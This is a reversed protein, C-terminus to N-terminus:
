QDNCATSVNIDVLPGTHPLPQTEPDPLAMNLDGSQWPFKVSKPGTVDECGLRNNM